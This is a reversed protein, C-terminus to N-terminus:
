PSFLIVCDVSSPTGRASVRLTSDSGLLMALAKNRLHLLRTARLNRHPM